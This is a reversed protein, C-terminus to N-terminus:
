SAAGSQVPAAEQLALVDWGGAEREMYDGMDAAYASGKHQVNASVTVLCPRGSVWRGRRGREVFGGCPLAGSEVSSVDM